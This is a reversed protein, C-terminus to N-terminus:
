DNENSENNENEKKGNNAYKNKTIKAGCNPCYKPRYDGFSGFDGFKCYSCLFGRKSVNRSRHAIKCHKMVPIKSVSSRLDDINAYNDLVAELDSYNILKM